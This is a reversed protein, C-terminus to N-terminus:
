HGREEQRTLPADVLILVDYDSEPGQEGRAVSGYLVVSAGPLFAAIVGSSKACPEPM